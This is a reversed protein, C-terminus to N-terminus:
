HFIFSCSDKVRAQIKMQFPKIQRELGNSRTQDLVTTGLQEWVTKIKVQIWFGFDSFSTQEMTTMSQYFMTLHMLFIELM